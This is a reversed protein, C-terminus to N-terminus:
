LRFTQLNYKIVWQMLNADDQQLNYLLESLKGRKQFSEGIPCGCNKHYEQSAKAFRQFWNKEYKRLGDVSCIDNCFHQINLDM